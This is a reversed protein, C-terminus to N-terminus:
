LGSLFGILQKLAVPDFDRGVAIQCGGDVLLCISSHPGGSVAETPLRLEIFASSQAPNFKNKWYSFRRRSLNRRRCYDIQSLGSESWDKVHQEWYSRKQELSEKVSETM